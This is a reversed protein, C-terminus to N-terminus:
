RNTKIDKKYILISDFPSGKSKKAWSRGFLLLYPHFFQLILNLRTRYAFSPNYVSKNGYLYNEHLSLMLIKASDRDVAMRLLVLLLNRHRHLLHSVRLLAPHYRFLGRKLFIVFLASSLSSTFRRSSLLLLFNGFVVVFSRIHRSALLALRDINVISWLWDPDVFFSYFIQPLFHFCLPVINLYDWGLFICESCHHGNGSLVKGEFFKVQTWLCFILLKWIEIM